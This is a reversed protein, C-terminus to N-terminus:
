WCRKGSTMYWSTENRETVRIYSFFFYSFADAQIILQLESDWFSDNWGLVIVSVGQWFRNKKEFENYCCESWLCCTCCFNCYSLQLSSNYWRFWVSFPTLEEIKVSVCMLVGTMVTKLVSQCRRVKCESFHIYSASPLFNFHKDHWLFPVFFFILERCFDFRHNEACRGLARVVSSRSM